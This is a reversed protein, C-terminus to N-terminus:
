LMVDYNCISQKTGVFVVTNENVIGVVCCFCCKGVNVVIVDEKKSM